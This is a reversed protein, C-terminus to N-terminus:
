PLALFSNTDLRYVVDDCDYDNIGGANSITPGPSLVVPIYIKGGTAAPCNFPLLNGSGVEYDIDIIYERGWPDIAQKM